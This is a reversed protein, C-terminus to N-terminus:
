KRIDSSLSIQVLVLGKEIKEIKAFTKKPLDIRKYTFRKSIRDTVVVKISHKNRLNTIVVETGLPLLNTACTLGNDSFAQGNAMVGKTRAWTGEKKLSDTSYWSATLFYSAWTDQSSLFVVAIAITIILRPEWSFTHHGRLIKM